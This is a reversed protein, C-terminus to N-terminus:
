RLLTAIALVWPVASALSFMIAKKAWLHKVMAIKANVHIQELWDALLDEDTASKFQDAYDASTLKDILGFYLLSKTAGGKLRPNITMAACFVGTFLLLTAASTFLWAWADKNACTTFAVALGGLMAIDITTIAGAKVETTSVWTLQRELVWQATSLKEKIM